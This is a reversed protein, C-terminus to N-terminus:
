RPALNLDFANAGAKVEATLGATEESAFKAPVGAGEVTVKRAGTPVRSITYQGDKVKAGVFEGDPLHFLVRGAALPKGNLVVTGSVKGDAAGAPGASLVLAVVAPALTRFSM